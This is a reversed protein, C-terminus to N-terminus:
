EPERSRKLEAGRQLLNDSAIVLLELEVLLTRLM